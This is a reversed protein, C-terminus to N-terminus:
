KDKMKKNIEIMKNTTLEEKPITNFIEKKYWYQGYKKTLMTNREILAECWQHSQNYNKLILQKEQETLNDPCILVRGSLMSMFIFCVLLLNKM